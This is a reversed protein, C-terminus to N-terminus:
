LQSVSQKAQNSLLLPLHALRQMFLAVFQQTTHSIASVLAHVEVTHPTHSEILSELSKLHETTPRMNLSGFTTKLAHVERSAVSWNGRGVSEQLLQIQAPVRAVFAQLMKTIFEEDSALRGGLMLFDYHLESTTPLALEAPQISIAQGRQSVRMLLNYLAVESYPKILADTFGQQQCVDAYVRVADATMAVIPTHRNLNPEQRLKATAEIGDLQPMQIDMLILDYKREFAKQLAEEGNHAIEVVVQWQSMMSIAILQNVANDEVLLVTLGRLLDLSPEFILSKLGSTPAESSITYPISFHFCSGKGFESRVGIQGDQLEVLNKCITLGLGTGGYLRTITPNAQEFRNFIQGIDTANIGIGSDEISITVPLNDTPSAPTDFSVTITIVGHATFKIANSILNVLIQHLRHPDGLLLPPKTAPSVIRLHLGKEATKFSFSNAAHQVVSLLDFSIREFSIQGSKIKTFNLIDNVVTLLNDTNYLLMELYDTQEPSLEGKKLMEALGMIGHLPTRIEHSMNAMFLQETQVLDNALKHAHKLDTIDSSFTLLYRTGDSRVLPRQTTRYVVTQGDKLQYHEEFATIGALHTDAPSEPDPMVVADSLKEVSVYQELLQTYRKNALIHKGDTDRVYVLNPSSDIVQRILDQEEELQLETQKLQKTVQALSQAIPSAQEAPQALHELLLQLRAVEAEAVERRQRETALRVKFSM